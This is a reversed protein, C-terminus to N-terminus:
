KKLILVQTVLLQKLDNDFLAPGLEIVCTCAIIIGRPSQLM